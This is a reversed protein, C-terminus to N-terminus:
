GRRRRRRVAVLEGEVLLGVRDAMRMAHHLLHSSFVITAGNEKMRDLLGRLVEMGLLDLNVTPEDLVLIAVEELLAVALGLRQVM